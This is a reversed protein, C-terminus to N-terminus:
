LLNCLVSWETHVSCFCSNFDASNQSKICRLIATNYQCKLVVQQNMNLPWATWSSSKTISVQATIHHQRLHSVVTIWLLPCSITYLTHFYMDSSTNNFPIFSRHQPSFEFQQIWLSLHWVVKRAYKSGGGRSHGCEQWVAHSYALQRRVCTDCSQSWM